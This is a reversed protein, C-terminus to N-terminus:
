DPQGSDLYQEGAGAATRTVRDLWVLYESAFPQTGGRVADLLWSAAQEAQSIVDAPYGVRVQHEAFEDDDM